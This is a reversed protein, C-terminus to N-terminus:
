LGSRADKTLMWVVTGRDMQGHLHCKFLHTDSLELSRLVGTGAVASSLRQGRQLVGGTGQLPRRRSGSSGEPSHLFSCRRRQPERQKRAPGGPNTIECM